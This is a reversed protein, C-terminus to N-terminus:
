PILEGYPATLFTDVSVFYHDFIIRAIDMIASGSGGKEVVIAIAIEPNDSPAYCVFVGDNV